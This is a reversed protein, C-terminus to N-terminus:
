LSFETWARHVLHKVVARFLMRFNTFNGLEAAFYQLILFYPMAFKEYLRIVCPFPYRMQPSIPAFITPKEAIDISKRAYYMGVNICFKFFERPWIKGMKCCKAVLSPLRVLKLM